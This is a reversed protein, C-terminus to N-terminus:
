NEFPNYTFYYYKGKELYAQMGMVLSNEKLEVKKRKIDKGKIFDISILYTEIDRQNNPLAINITLSDGGKVENLLVRGGLNAPGLMSSKVGLYSYLKKNHLFYYLSTDSISPVYISENTKNKLVFSENITQENIEFVCELQIGDMYYTFNQAHAFSCSIYVITIIIKNMKM